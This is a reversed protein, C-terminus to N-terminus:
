RLRVPRRPRFPYGNLERHVFDPARVVLVGRHYRITAWTGGVRGWGEPEVTERVLEILTAVQENPTPVEPEDSPPPFLSGGRNGSGSGSGGGAGGGAGGGGGIANQSLAAEMDFSPANTYRPAAALLDDVGYYRLQQASPAALRPKPGVEVFGRRLQWTCSVTEDSCQELILELVTLVRAGRAELHIPQEPDIGVSADGEDYRAILDIGTSRRIFDIADRAPVGDFRVSIETYVLAGLLAPADHSSQGREARKTLAHDIRDSLTQGSAPAAVAAVTCTACAAGLLRRAFANM